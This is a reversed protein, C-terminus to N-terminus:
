INFYMSLQSCLTNVSKHISKLFTLKSEGLCNVSSNDISKLCTWEENSINPNDRIKAFPLINPVHTSVLVKVLEINSQVKLFGAYFGRKLKKDCNKDYEIIEKLSRALYSHESDKSSNYGAPSKSGHSKLLLKQIEMSKLSQNITGMSRKDNQCNEVNKTIVFFLSGNAQKLSQHYVRGLDTLELLNQLHKISTLLQYRYKLSTTSITQEILSKFKDTEFWNFSLKMLFQLDNNIQNSFSEDIEIM